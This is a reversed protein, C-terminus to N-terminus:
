LLVVVCGRSFDCRERGLITEGWGTSGEAGIPNYESRTNAKTPTYVPLAKGYILM